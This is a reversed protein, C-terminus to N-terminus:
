KQYQARASPLDIEEKLLYKSMGIRANRAFERVNLKSGDVDFDKRDSGLLEKSLNTFNKSKFLWNRSVFYSVSIIAFYVKRTLKGLMPKKGAVKLLEDVLVAVSANLLVFLIRFTTLSKVFYNFPYWMTGNFPYDNVEALAMDRIEAHTQKMYTNMSCNYVPLTQTDRETGKKWSATMMGNVVLDVPMNDLIHNPDAQMVRLFGKGTALSLGVPGNLNDAWGPLPEKWMSTVIGPRYIVLPLRHSYDEVVNEALHKTYIYTNKLGNLCKETLCAMTYDDQYGEALRIAEKWDGHDRYVKEEIVDKDTNCYATSVHVGVVLNPMDLMLEMIERTGRTNMLTAQKLPDDFRVSAAAHFVVHCGLLRKRDEENLGLRLESVDGTIAQVKDLVKPNTQRITDFLPNDLITRVREQPKQNKKSRVLLYITKVEPCCRLLKEILVKGIFGSGGTIFVQKGSFFEPITIDTM